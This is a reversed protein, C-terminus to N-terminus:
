MTVEPRTKLDKPVQEKALQKDGLREIAEPTLETGTVNLEHIVYFNSCADLGADTIATGSLDLFFCKQLVNGEDLRALQEDTITSNSLNLDFVPDHKAREIMSDILNETLEAGSLDIFWGTMSFGGRSGQERKASGGYDAILDSFSRYKDQLQEYESKGEFMGCGSLCFLMSLAILGVPRVLNEM